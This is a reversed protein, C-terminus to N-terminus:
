FSLLRHIIVFIIWIFGIILLALGVSAVVCGPTPRGIPGGYSIADGFFVLLLSPGILCIIAGCATGANGDSLIILFLAYIVAIILAFIKYKAM